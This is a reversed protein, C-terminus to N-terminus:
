ININIYISINLVQMIKVGKGSGAVVGAMNQVNKSAGPRLALSYEGAYVTNNQALAIVTVDLTKEEAGMEYSLNDVAQGGM